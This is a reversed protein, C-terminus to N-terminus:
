ERGGEKPWLIMGALHKEFVHGERLECQGGEPHREPCRKVGIWENFKGRVSAEREDARGRQYAINYLVEDTHESM